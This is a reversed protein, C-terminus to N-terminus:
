YTYKVPTTYIRVSVLEYFDFVTMIPWWRSSAVTPRMIVGGTDSLPMDVETPWATAHTGTVWRAQTRDDTSVLKRSSNKRATEEGTLCIDPLELGALDGFIIQGDYDYKWIWRTLIFPHTLPTYQREHEHQGPPSGPMSSIGWGFLSKM